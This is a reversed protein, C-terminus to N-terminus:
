KSLGLLALHTLMIGMFLLLGMVDKVPLLLTASRDTYPQNTLDDGTSTLSKQRGIDRQETSCIIVCEWAVYATSLLM